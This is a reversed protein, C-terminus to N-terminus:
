DVTIFVGEGQGLVVEFTGNDKEADSPIGDRYVVVKGPVTLRVNVTKPDNYNQMSVLTFAYGHGDKKEFCGVLLPADTDIKEIARFNRYPNNMELYPTKEPTSNVNFAGLNRYSLYIDSLRKLGECMKQSEVFLPTKEGRINLCTGTHAKRAAFVYYLLTVAGYSLMTYAQWRLESGDPERVSRAWSCSQICVWLQRGSRRCEDAVIEVSKVYNPYTTKIYAAPFDDPCAPDPARHCPYTDMCIYDTDIYKVYEDLYTQFTTDPTEYYEIPSKWAGGTLQASNAYMPLLNIYPRKGPFVKKFLEAERGLQEFHETGPEDVYTFAKFAAEDKFWLLDAKEMDLMGADKYYKMAKPYRVTCEIGYKEFWKFIDRHKEEPIYSSDLNLVAYDVGAQALLKIHEEDCYNPDIPTYAGIRIRDDKLEDLKGSM